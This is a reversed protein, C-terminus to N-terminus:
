VNKINELERDKKLKVRELNEIITEGVTSLKM